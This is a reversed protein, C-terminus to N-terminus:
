PVNCHHSTEIRFTIGVVFLCRERPFGQFAGEEKENEEEVVDELESHM